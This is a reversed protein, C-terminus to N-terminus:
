LWMEAYFLLKSPVWAMLFRFLSFIEILHFYNKMRQLSFNELFGVEL